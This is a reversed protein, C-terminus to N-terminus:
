FPARENASCESFHGYSQKYVDLRLFEKKALDRSIMRM